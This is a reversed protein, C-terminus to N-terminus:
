DAASKFALFLLGSLSRLLLGSIVGGGFGLGLRIRPLSGSIQLGFFIRVSLSRLLLGGIFGSDFGLCLRIRPLSGSIQLCLLVGFGGRLLLRVRLGRSCRRFHNGRRGCFGGHRFGRGSDFRRQWGIRIVGSFRQAQRRRDRRRRGNRRLLLRLQLSRSAFYM